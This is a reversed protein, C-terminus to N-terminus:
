VVMWYITLGDEREGKDVFRCGLFEAAAYVEEESPTSIEDTTEPLPSDPSHHAVWGLTLIAAGNVIEVQRRLSPTWGIAAYQFLRRKVAETLTPLQM